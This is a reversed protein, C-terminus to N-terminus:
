VIKSIAPIPLRLKKLLNDGYSVMSHCGRMNRIFTYIVTPRISGNIFSIDTRAPWERDWDKLPVDAMTKGTKGSHALILLHMHPHGDFNLVGKCSVRVGDRKANERCWLRLMQQAQGSNIKNYRFTLTAFAEWSWGAIWKILETHYHSKM